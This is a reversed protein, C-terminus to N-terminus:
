VTEELQAGMDWRLRESGVGRRQMEKWASVRLVYARCCAGREMWSVRGANLMLFM